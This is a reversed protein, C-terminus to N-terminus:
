RLRPLVIWELVEAASKTKRVHSKAESFAEQLQSEQASAAELDFSGDPQILDEALSLIKLNTEPVSELIGALEECTLTGAGKTGVRRQFEYVKTDGDKSEKVKANAIEPYFDTLVDQVQKVSMGPDPDPHDRGDVRFVRTSTTKAM